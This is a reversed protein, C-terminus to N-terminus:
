VGVPSLVAEGEGGADDVPRFRLAEGIHAPMVADMDDLDAITRAVRLVRHYSRASLMLRDAARVLLARAAPDLRAAPAVFLAKDRQRIAITTPKAYPTVVLGEGVRWSEYEICPLKISDAFTGGDAGIRMTDAVWSAVTGATHETIALASGYQPITTSSQLRMFVWDPHKRQIADWATITWAKLRAIERPLSGQVTEITPGSVGCEMRLREVLEVFTM